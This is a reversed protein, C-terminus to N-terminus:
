DRSAKDDPIAIGKARLAELQKKSLGVSTLLHVVQEAAAQAASDPQVVPTQVTDTPQQGSFGRILADALVQGTRIDGQEDKHMVSAHQDRAKETPFLPRDCFNCQFGPYEKGELQPFRIPQAGIWCTSIHSKHYQTLALGCVPVVPPNLHFGSSLIQDLSLEKAGGKMFLLELPHNAAYEATMDFRGYQPLPEWGQRRYNLEELETTVGMTIWGNPQRYYGMTPRIRGLQGTQIMEMYNSTM